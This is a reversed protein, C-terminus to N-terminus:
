FNFNAQASLINVDAEYSYVDNRLTWTEAPALGMGFDGYTGPIYNSYGGEASQTQNHGLLICVLVFICLRNNPLMLLGMGRAGIM